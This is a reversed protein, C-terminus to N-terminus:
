CEVEAEFLLPLCTVTPAVNSGPAKSTRTSFSSMNQLHNYVAGCDSRYIKVLCFIVFFLNDIM